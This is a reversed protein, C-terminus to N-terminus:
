AAQIAAIYGTGTGGAGLNVVVPRTPASGVSYTAAGGSTTVPGSMASMSISFLIVGTSPTCLGDFQIKHCGIPLAPLNAQIATGNWTMKVVTGAAAAATINLLVTIGAKSMKRLGQFHNSASNLLNESITTDSGAVLATGAGSNRATDEGLFGGAM